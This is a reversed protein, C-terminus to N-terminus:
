RSLRPTKPTIRAIRPAIRSQRTIDPTKIPSHKLAEKARWLKYFPDSYGGDDWKVIWYVDGSKDGYDNDEEFVNRVIEAKRKEDRLVGFHTKKLGSTNRVTKNRKVGM